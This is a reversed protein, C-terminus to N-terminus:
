QNGQHHHFHGVDTIHSIQKIYKAKTFLFNFIEKPLRRMIQLFFLLTIGSLVSENNNNILQQYKEKKFNM